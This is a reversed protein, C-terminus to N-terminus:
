LKRVVRQSRQPCIVKTLLSNEARTRRYLTTSISRPQGFSCAALLSKRFRIGGMFDRAGSPLPLFGQCQYLDLCKIHKLTM